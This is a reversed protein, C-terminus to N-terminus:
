GRTLNEPLLGLLESYAFPTITQQGMREGGNVDPERSSIQLAHLLCGDVGGGSLLAQDADDVANICGDSLNATICEDFEVGPGGFINWKNARERRVFAAAQVFLERATRTCLDFCSVCINESAGDQTSTLSGHLYFCPLLSNELKKGRRSHSFINSFAKAIGCVGVIIFRNKVKENAGEVTNWRLSFKPSENKFAFEVTHGLIEM